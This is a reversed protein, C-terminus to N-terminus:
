RPGKKKILGRDDFDIESESVLWQIVENIKKSPVNKLADYINQRTTTGHQIQKEIEARIQYFENAQPLQKRRNVCNDCIGCDKEVPAGFYLSIMRSRCLQKNLIFRKMAELRKLYRRKRENLAQEHIILDSAKVRNHLFCIQPQDKQPTYKIIQHQHLKQLMAKIKDVNTNIVRALREEEISAPFDFIGEYSRLLTKILDDFFVYSNSFVELQQKSCTFVVSSPFFFDESYSLLEEQELIKLVNMVMLADLGFNTIFKGIDFDFSLNEGKGSPLQFFNCLCGYIKQINEISPYKVHAQELMEEPERSTYLLVAYSKIGDRGARGAEQYYNELAEPADTHIVLRVDAKDIGMGFANTCVMARIENNIWDIQKANRQTHTLGAHYHTAQIGNLQLIHALQKTRKRSRCYIIATGPVRRLIDILKTQKYGTEIVSYSLNPREFSQQFRRPNNLLLKEAIDAQVPPTASATVALVPVQPLLERLAAIQLYAPRFDYGWQSICHAEDVALLGINLVPLYDLFMESKLREPSVYLFKYNGYAANDFTKRIEFRSMASHIYLAEIGRSKLHMVQDKMLAVLPSVVLCLGDRCLAPVQYCISKGGGTPLLALTDHGELVSDIIKKQLPRFSTYGWYKQLVEGPTVM